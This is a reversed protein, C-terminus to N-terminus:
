RLRNYCCASKRLRQLFFKFPVDIISCAAALLKEGRCNKNKSLKQTGCKGCFPIFVCALSAKRLARKELAEAGAVGVLFQTGQGGFRVM